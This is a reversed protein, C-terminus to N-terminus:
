QHYDATNVRLSTRLQISRRRQPQPQSTAQRPPRKGWSTDQPSACVGPRLGTGERLGAGGGPGQDSQADRAM